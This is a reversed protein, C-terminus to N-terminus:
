AYEAFSENKKVCKISKKIIANDNEHSINLKYTKKFCLHLISYFVPTDQRKKNTVKKYNSLSRLFITEHLRSISTTPCILGNM